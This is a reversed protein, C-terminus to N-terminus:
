WGSIGVKELENVPVSTNVGKGVSFGRGGITTDDAGSASWDM